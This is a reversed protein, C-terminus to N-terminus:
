EEFSENRREDARGRIARAAGQGAGARGHFGGIFDLFGVVGIIIQRKRRARQKKATKPETEPTTLTQHM